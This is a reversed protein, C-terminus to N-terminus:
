GADLSLVLCFWRGRGPCLVLLVPHPATSIHGLVHWGQVPSSPVCLEHEGDESPCGLAAGVPEVAKGSHSM